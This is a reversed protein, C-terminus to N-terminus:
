SMRSSSPGDGDRGDARALMGVERAQECARWYAEASTRGGAMPANEGHDGTALWVLAHDPDFAAYDVGRGARHLPDLSEDVTPYAVPARIAPRAPRGNKGQRM